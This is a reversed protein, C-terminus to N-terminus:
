EAAVDWLLDTQNFTFIYNGAVGSTIPINGGNSLVSNGEGAGWDERWDGDQDFKFEYVTSAALAVSVTWVADGEVITKTMPTAGWGNMTGRLFMTNSIVPNTTTTTSSPITTTTTVVAGVQNAVSAIKTAFYNEVPSESLSMSEGENIDNDLYPSYLAYMQNYKNKFDAYSFIGTAPDILAKLYNTYATKYEPISLVKMLPRENYGSGPANYFWNYINANMIKDYGVGGDWGGGLGHDYDYPLFEIKGANNFYLYYNNGMSWYDDPMGLLMNAAIWRLFRDVEFNADLYTKLASGSLNTINQSFSKIDAYNDIVDENTQRDYAPRYNTQWNKIGVAGSSSVSGYKLTAPGYNQWLCKYLNGDNGDPGYRKKLFTKDISEIVTYIGFYVRSNDGIKIYLRTAGTKPAYVGARNLFDYSYLERIQTADDDRNWKLNIERNKKFRRDNRIDYEATGKVLDFTKDFKLKFHARHYKGESDEPRVRTTNGRTRFGVEDLIEDGAIGRYIFRVKRYNGTRENADMDSLLGNWESQTIHIEMESITNHSFLNRHEAAFYPYTKGNSGITTVVTTSSNDEYGITTASYQNDFLTTTTTVISNELDKALSCGFIIIIALLFVNITKSIKM